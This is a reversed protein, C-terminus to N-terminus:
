PDTLRREEASRRVTEAIREARKAPSKVNNIWYLFAKRASPSLSEFRELARPNSALARALNDPVIMEEVDDLANWSGNARAIEIAALGAPAMKGKAELRAVREKNTRSWISSPKRRAFLQRYRHEDLRRVTSDIWGFCLAEELAQEYTLSTVPNGKKGITLWVSPATGANRELWARWESRNRPELLEMENPASM